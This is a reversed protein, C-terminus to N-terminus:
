GKFSVAAYLVTFLYNKYTLCGDVMLDDMM